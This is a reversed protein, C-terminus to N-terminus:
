RETIRRKLAQLNQQAQEAKAEPAPTKKSYKAMLDAVRADREAARTTNPELGLGKARDQTEEIRDTAVRAKETARELFMVAQELEPGSISPRRAVEELKLLLRQVTQLEQNAHEFQVAVSAREEDALLIREAITQRRGNSAHEAEEVFGEIRQEIEDLRNGLAESRDEAVARLDSFDAYLRKRQHEDRYDKSIFQKFRHTAQTILSSVTSPPV